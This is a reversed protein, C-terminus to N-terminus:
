AKLVAEEHRSSYSDATRPQNILPTPRLMDNRPGRPIPLAHGQGDVLVYETHPAYTSGASALTQTRRCPGGTTESAKARVRETFESAYAQAIESSKLSEKLRGNRTRRSAAPVMFQPRVHYTSPQDVKILRSAYEQEFIQMAFEKLGHAQEGACPECFGRRSQKVETAFGGGFGGGSLGANIVPFDGHYCGGSSMDERARSHGCFVRACCQCTWDPHRGCFPSACMEGISIMQIADAMAGTICKLCVHRLPGHKRRLVAGLKQLSMLPGSHQNKIQDIILYGIGDAPLSERKQWVAHELANLDGRMVAKDYTERARWLGGGTSSAVALDERYAWPGYDCRRLCLGANCIQCQRVIPEGHRCFAPALTAATRAHDVQKFVTECHSCFFTLPKVEQVDM